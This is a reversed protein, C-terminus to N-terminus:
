KQFIMVSWDDNKECGKLTLGKYLQVLEDARTPFFGGAIFFGSASLLRIVDAAILSHVNLPVNAVIFPFSSLLRSVDSLLLKLRRKTFGNARANKVAEKIVFPDIDLGYAKKAGKKLMYLSLIGSGCGVDLVRKNKFFQKHSSIMNLTLKTAPHDFGFSRTTNIFIFNKGYKKKRNSFRIRDLFFDEGPQVTEEPPMLEYEEPSCGSLKNILRRKQRENFVFVSLLNQRKLVLPFNKLKKRLSPDDARILFEKVVMYVFLLLPTLRIRDLVAM